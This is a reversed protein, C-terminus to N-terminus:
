HPDHARVFERVADTDLFTLEVRGLRVNDGSKLDLPPGSGQRPVANGNVASGNVSGADQLLFRGGDLPKLFAHFRSVSLHPIVVDNNPTRGISVLPAVSRASRVLPYALLSLSASEGPTPSAELDILLAVQTAAPDTPRENEAASRLLFGSGHREEFDCASLDRADRRLNRIRVGTGESARPEDVAV